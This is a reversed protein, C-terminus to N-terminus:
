LIQKTETVKYKAKCMEKSKEKADNCAQIAGEPPLTMPANLPISQFSKHVKEAISSSKM